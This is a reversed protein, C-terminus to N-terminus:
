KILCVSRQIEDRLPLIQFWKVDLANRTCVEEETVGLEREEHITQTPSSERIPLDIPLAVRLAECYKLRVYQGKLGAEYFHPM